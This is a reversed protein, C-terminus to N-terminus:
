KSEETELMRSLEDFAKADNASFYFKTKPSELLNTRGEDDYIAIDVPYNINPTVSKQPCSFLASQSADLQKAIECRQSPDPTMFGVVVYVPQKSKNKLNLTLAFDEGPAAMMGGMTIDIWQSSFQEQTPKLGGVDLGACGAILVSLFVTAWVQLIAKVSM